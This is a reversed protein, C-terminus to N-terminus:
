ITRTMHPCPYADQIHVTAIFAVALSANNFSRRSLAAGKSLGALCASASAVSGQAFCSTLDTRQWVQWYDLLSTRASRSRWLLQKCHLTHGWCYYPLTFRPRSDGVFPCCGRHRHQPICYDSVTWWLRLIKASCAARQQLLHFHDGRNFIQQHHLELMACWLMCKSCRKWWLARIHPHYPYISHEHHLFTLM